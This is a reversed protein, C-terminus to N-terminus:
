RKVKVITMTIKGGTAEDSPAFQPKGAKLRADAVGAARFFQRVSEVRERAVALAAARTRRPAQRDAGPRLLDYLMDLADDTRALDRDIARLRQVAAATAPGSDAALRVRTEAAVDARLRMLALKRVHLASALASADSTSPNARMEARTVDGASLDHRLKLELEPDKKMRQALALLKVQEAPELGSYGAPFNLLVPEEPKAPGGLADLGVISGLGAVVKVPAALIANGIVSGVAEVIAGSIGDVNLKGNADNKVKVALPLTISKDAAEVAGIAVDLPAPLNLFRFIPGNAPESVSLDTFAPRASVDLIGDGAARLDLTLDFTGNSLNIGFDKAVGGLAAVEFGSISTKAWGSPQPYLSVRGGTAIQAFLERSEFEPKVEPTKGGLLNAMDGAAGLMGGKMRKPLQVKGTGITADFRIPHDEFQALSNLDRAELDLQNLPVILNPTVSRDEIHFDIGSITFRDIRIEGAPKEALVPQTSVPSPATGPMPVTTAPVPHTSPQTGPNTNAPQTAALRKPMKVLLGAVRIGDMDRVVQGVPKSLEITKIRVTGASPRFRGEEVRLEDLGLLIPGNAEFRFETGKVLLELDFGKLFNVDAPGRRDLNSLQVEAHTKFQGQKLASGDIKEKLAPVLATLGDGKIGSLVIEAQLTPQLAFPATQLNISLSELLPDIKGTLEFKAPPRGSADPGLLEVKGINRFRLPAVVLPVSAPQSADRYSLRRINLDLTKLTILPLAKRANAVIANADAVIVPQTTPPKAPSAVILSPAAPVPGIAALPTAPAPEGLSIGLLHLAGDADKIADLEVGQLVVEDIAIAGGEIDARPVVISFSEVKFHSPSAEDWWDVGSVLLSASLGGADAPKLRADLMAKLQGNKLDLKVGPPLYTAIATGRIGNGTVVLKAAQQKEDALVTGAVTLHELVDDVKLDLQLTAPTPERGLVVDTLDLNAHLTTNVPKLAAADNWALAADRVHLGPLLLTLSPRTPAGPVSPFTEADAHQPEIVPTIAKAPSASTEAPKPLVIRVGGVVFAGNAQRSIAARPKEIVVDGLSITNTKENLSISDLRVSDVGALEREGDSYKVGDLLFSAALGQERKTVGVKLHAAISGSELMPEIGLSKLYGAVGAATIGEGTANLDLNLASPTPTMTGEVALKDAIKPASLWARIKGPAPNPSKGELDFRLDTLEVGADGLSLSTPPVAAEDDFRVRIDRWQFKGLEFRALKMGGPQEAQRRSPPMPTPMKTRFGFGALAGSAERKFALTPGSIELKDVRMLGIVPDISVGAIKVDNLGFLEERDRFSIKGLDVEAIIKGAPDITAAATLAATFSADSLRSELGLMDLYPRLVTPALGEASFAIELTKRIAFPKAVGELKLTRAIGPARFTGAIRIPAELKEPDLAVDRVTFEEVEFALPAPPTVLRDEVAVRVNRVAFLDLAARFPVGGPVAAPKTTAVTALTAPRSTPATSPAPLLEIGAVRINGDSTRLASARVGNILVSAISAGVTNLKTADIVLSDVAAAEEGDALLSLNTLNLNFALAEAPKADAAFRSAPTATPRTGAALQTAAQMLGAATTTLTGSMRASLADAVPKIGFPALYGTLPRLHLGKLAVTVNAELSAGAARGEGEVSLSDLLPDSYVNVEFRTPRIASGIDSVRIDIQAMADLPPSLSQDKVHLRVHQLRFGEIQLPSTLDIPTIGISPVPEKAATAAPTAFQQLIRDLAPIKGDATRVLNVDIGDVEVRWVELKGVFLKFPSITARLYDTKALPKASGIPTFSLRGLAVDGGTLSIQLRDYDADLGYGAAIKKLVIPFAVQLAIRFLIGAILLAVLTIGIRRKWSRKKKPKKVKDAFSSKPIVNSETSESSNGPQEQTEMNPESKSPDAIAPPKPPHSESM